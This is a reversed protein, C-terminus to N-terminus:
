VFDPFHFERRLTGDALSGGPLSAPMAEIEQASLRPHANM